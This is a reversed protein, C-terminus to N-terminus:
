VLLYAKNKLRDLSLTKFYGLILIKILVKHVLIQSKEMKIGVNPPATVQLGRGRVKRQLLTVLLHKLFFLRGLYSHLCRIQPTFILYIILVIPTNSLRDYSKILKNSFNSISLYDILYPIKPTFILNTTRVCGFIQHTNSMNQGRIASPSATKCPLKGLDAFFNSFSLLCEVIPVRSSQAPQECPKGM